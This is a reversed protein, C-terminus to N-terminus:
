TASAVLVKGYESEPNVLVRSAPGYEVFEGRRMVAAADAMHRAVALDHTILLYALGLDRQLDTLLNLIQAQVSVDLASTPEDCVLLSPSLAIARAIAIRQKQGGSFEHPWRRSAGAPLGCRELLEDARRLREAHTAPLRHVALPEAVAEGVRMRPDLSGGPDQFIMQAARRIALMAAGKAHHVDIGNIQVRGATVPVLGLIARALTSKGSGSEGVVALTQERELVFSVANVAHIGPTARGILSRRGGFCVHLEHVALLPPVPM